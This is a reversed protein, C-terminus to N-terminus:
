VYMCVYACVCMRSIRVVDHVHMTHMCVHICSGDRSNHLFTWVFVCVCLACWVLKWELCSTGQFVPSMNADLGHVCMGSPYVRVCVSQTCFMHEKFSASVVTSCIHIHSTSPAETVRITPKMHDEPHHADDRAIWM